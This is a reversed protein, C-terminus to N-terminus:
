EAKDVTIINEALDVLENLPINGSIWYAYMSDHWLLGNVQIGETIFSTSIGDNNGVKIDRM